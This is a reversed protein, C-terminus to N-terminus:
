EKIKYKSFVEKKIKEHEVNESDSAFSVETENLNFKGNNVNIVVYQGQDNQMM